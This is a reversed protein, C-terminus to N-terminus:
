ESQNKKRHSHLPFYLKKIVVQLDIHLNSFFQLLIKPMNCNFQLHHVSTLITIQPLSTSFKFVPLFDNAKTDPNKSNLVVFTRLNIM